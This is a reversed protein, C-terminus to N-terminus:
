NEQRRSFFDGHIKIYEDGFTFINVLGSTIAAPSPQRPTQKPLISLATLAGPFVAL